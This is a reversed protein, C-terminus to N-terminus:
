IRVKFYDSAIDDLFFFLTSVDERLKELKEEIQNFTPRDIDRHQWCDCM